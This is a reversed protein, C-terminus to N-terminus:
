APQVSVLFEQAQSIMRQAKIYFDELSGYRQWAAERDTEPVDPGRLAKYDAYARESEEKALASLTELSLTELSPAM